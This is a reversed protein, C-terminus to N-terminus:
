GAEGALVRYSAYRRTSIQARDVAAKVGCGPENLHRCNRFRCSRAPEVFEPFGASPNWDRELYPTYERVGPSDIIEGGGPLSYLRSASTTHTGEGSRASVAGVAAGSHQCLANLLSSKGVGSQGVLVSTRARSLAALRELGQGTAVSTRVVPYPVAAYEVLTEEGAGAASAAALEIKNCVIVAAADMAAAAMLYRDILNADLPPAVACVIILQDLNAALTDPRGRSDPRTLANIRPLLSEVIGREGHLGAQWRVRDGCVARLKRKRVTCPHVHRAADEVLVHHGFDAM